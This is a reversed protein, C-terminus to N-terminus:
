EGIDLHWIKMINFQRSRDFVIEKCLHKIGLAIISHEFVFFSTDLLILTLLALKPLTVWKNVEINKMADSTSLIM